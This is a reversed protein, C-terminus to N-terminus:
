INYKEMVSHLFNYAYTECFDYYRSSDVENKFFDEIMVLFNEQKINFDKLLPNHLCHWHSNSHYKYLDDRYVSNTNAVINYKKLFEVYDDEDERVKQLLSSM